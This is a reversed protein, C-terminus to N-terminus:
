LSSSRTARRMDVDRWPWHRLYAGVGRPWLGGAADGGWGGDLYSIDSFCIACADLSVEVEGPGPARLHVTEIRLPQGFEHCIAARIETM